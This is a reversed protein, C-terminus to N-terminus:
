KQSYYKRRWRDFVRSFAAATAMTNDNPRREPIFIKRAKLKGAEVSESDIYAFREPLEPNASERRLRRETEEYDM